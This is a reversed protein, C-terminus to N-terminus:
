MQRFLHKHAESVDLREMRTKLKVQIAGALNRTVGAIADVNVITSRHIQWFRGPDLQESLEKLSRRILSEGEATVVRTYKTDAQFYCIEEVTILQVGNGRSANIWRLYNREAGPAAPETGPDRPPAAQTELRQKIRRVALMLRAPEYPKLLYDAVGREFAAIAYADYATVFVMHCRGEVQRAVDLGTLGPMQIDLFMIDPQHRDFLSLAEIGNAAEAVIELEPWLAALHGRLEARLVDEDEAIIARPRTM